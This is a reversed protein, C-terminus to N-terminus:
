YPYMGAQEKNHIATGHENYIESVIPCAYTAYYMCTPHRICELEVLVHVCGSMLKVYYVNCFHFYRLFPIIEYGQFINYDKSVHELVLQVDLIDVLMISNNVCLVM